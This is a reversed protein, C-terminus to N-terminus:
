STATLAPLRPERDGGPRGARVPDSLRAHIRGLLRHHRHRARPGIDVGHREAYHRAIRGRLSPIGLTETYAIRGGIAARAAALATAPAAAAPQGVEMHIVHTGAAELRAAAAMVDMSWSPRCTAARRRYSRGGKRIGADDGSRKCSSGCAGSFNFVKRALDHAFALVHRALIAEIRLSRARLGTLRGGRQKGYKGAQDLGPRPIRDPRPAARAGALVALRSLVKREAV